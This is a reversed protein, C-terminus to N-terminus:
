SILSSTNLSVWQATGGFDDTRVVDSDFSTSGTGTIRQTMQYGRHPLTTPVGAAESSGGRWYHSTHLDWYLQDATLGPSAGVYVGSVYGVATVEAHWANCYDIVNQSPSGAAVGELDLWVTVGAPLGAGGALDAAAAGFQRGLALTPKWNRALPHQVVSLALGADLILEAEAPTLDVFKSPGDNRGVYRIVFRYNRNFFQKATARNLPESADFGLTGDQLPGIRGDVV